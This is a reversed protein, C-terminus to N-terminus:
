ATWGSPQSSSTVLAFMGRLLGIPKVPIQHLVQPASSGRREGLRGQRGGGSVFMATLGSRSQATEPWDTASATWGTRCTRVRLNPHHVADCLHDGPDLDVGRDPRGASGPRNV